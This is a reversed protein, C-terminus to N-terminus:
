ISAKLRRAAEYCVAYERFIDVDCLAEALVKNSLLQLWPTGDVEYEAEYGDLCSLVDRGDMESWEEPKWDHSM